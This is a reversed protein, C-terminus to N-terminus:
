RHLALKVLMPTSSYGVPDPRASAPSYRNGGGRARMCITGCITESIPDLSCSNQRGGAICSPLQVDENM